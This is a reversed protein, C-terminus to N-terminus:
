GFTQVLWHRIKLFLLKIVALLAFRKQTSELLNIQRQLVNRKIDTDGGVLLVPRKCSRKDCACILSDLCLLM